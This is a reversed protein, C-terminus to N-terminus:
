PHWQRRQRRGQYVGTAAVVAAFIIIIGVAPASALNITMEAMLGNRVGLLILSRGVAYSLVIGTTAYALAQVVSQSVIHRGPGQLGHPGQEADSRWVTALLAVPTLLILVITTTVTAAGGSGTALAVGVQAALLLAALVAITLLSRLPKRRNGAAPDPGRGALGVMLALGGLAGILLPLFRADLSSSVAFGPAIARLLLAMSLLIGASALYQRAAGDIRLVLRELAYAFPLLLVLYFTASVVTGWVLSEVYVHGSTLLDWAAITATHSAAYRREALHEAAALLELRAKELLSEADDSGIGFRALHQLTEADEAWLDQGLELDARLLPQDIAHGEAQSQTVEHAASVTLPGKLRGPQVSRLTASLDGASTRMSVQVRSGRPAFVVSATPAGVMDVPAAASVGAGHSTGDRSTVTVSQPVFTQRGGGPWFLSLARCDFLELRNDDGRTAGANSASQIAGSADDIEYAALANPARRSMIHLDFQGEANARDTILTRVGGISSAGQYRYAVLAGPVTEASADTLNEDVSRHITGTLRQGRDSFSTTTPQLLLPDKGAWMVMATLKQIQAALNAFDVREPTDLPTDWFTREDGATVITLAKRGAARA